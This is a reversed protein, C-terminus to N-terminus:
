RRAPFANGKRIGITFSHSIKFAIKRHALRIFRDTAADCKRNCFIGDADRTALYKYLPRTKKEATM